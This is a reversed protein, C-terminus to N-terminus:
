FDFGNELFYKSPKWEQAQVYEFAEVFLNSYYEIGEPTNAFKSVSDNALNDFEILFEAKAANDRLVDMDPSAFIEVTRKKRIPIAFKTLYDKSAKDYFAVENPFYFNRKGDHIDGKSGGNFILQTKSETKKENYDFHLSVFFDADYYEGFRNRLLLEDWNNVRGNGDIDGNKGRNKRNVPGHDDRTLIVGYGLYNLKEKIKKAVKLNLYREDKSGTGKYRWSHGPDLVITTLNNTPKEVFNQPAVATWSNFFILGGIFAKKALSSFKGM